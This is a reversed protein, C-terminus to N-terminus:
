ILVPSSGVLFLHTLNVRTSAVLFSLLCQYSFRTAASRIWASRSPFTSQCFSAQPACRGRMPLVLRFRFITTGGFGILPFLLGAAFTLAPFRSPCIQDGIQYPHLFPSCASSGFRMPPWVRFHIWPAFSILPLCFPSPDHAPFSVSPPFLFDMLSFWSRFEIHHFSV